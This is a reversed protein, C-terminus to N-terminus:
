FLCLEYRYLFLRVYNLYIFIYVTKSVNMSVDIYTITDLSDVYIIGCMFAHIFECLM